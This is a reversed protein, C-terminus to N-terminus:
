TCNILRNMPFATKGRQILGGLLIQGKPTLHVGDSSYDAKMMIHNTEVFDHVLPLMVSNKDNRVWNYVNLEYEKFHQIVYDVITFPIGYCIIRATPYAERLANFLSLCAVKVIGIEYHQLLGNGDPTGVVIVNPVFNAAKFLPLMDKLLQEMHGARMGGLAFNLRPDVVNSIYDKAQAAISDGFLITRDKDSKMKNKAYDIFNKQCNILHSPYDGHPVLPGTNPTRFKYDMAIMADRVEDKKKQYERGMFYTVIAAQINNLVGM